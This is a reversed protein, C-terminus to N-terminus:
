GATIDIYEIFRSVVAARLSKTTASATGGFQDASAFNGYSPFFAPFNDFNVAKMAM